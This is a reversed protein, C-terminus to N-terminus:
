QLKSSLELRQREIDDKEIGQKKLSENLSSIESERKNISSELDSKIRNFSTIDTKAVNLEERMTAIEIDKQTMQKSSYECDCRIYHLLHTLLKRHIYTGKSDQIHILENRLSKITADSASTALELRKINALREASSASEFSLKEKLL